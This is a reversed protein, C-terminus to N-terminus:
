FDRTSIKAVESSHIASDAKSGGLPKSCPVFIYCLITSIMSSTERYVMIQLPTGAGQGM